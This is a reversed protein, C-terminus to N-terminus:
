RKKYYVLIAFLASIGILVGAAYLWLMVDGGPNWAYPFVNTTSVVVPFSIVELGGLGPIQNVSIV